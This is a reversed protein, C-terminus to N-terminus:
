RQGVALRAMRGGRGAGSWGSASSMRKLNKGAAESDLGLVDKQGDQQGLIRKGSRVSGVAAMGDCRPGTRANGSVWRWARWGAGCKYDRAGRGMRDSRGSVIQIRKM